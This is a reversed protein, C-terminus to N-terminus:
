DYLAKIRSFSKADTPLVEPIVFPPGPDCPLKTDSCTVYVPQDPHQSTNASLVAYNPAVYERREIMVPNDGWGNLCETLAVNTGTEEDIVLGDGTPGLVRDLLFVEIPASGFLPGPTIDYSAAAITAPVHAVVYVTFYLYEDGTIFYDVGYSQMGEADGFVGIVCDQAAATLPLLVAFAVATALILRNPMADLGKALTTFLASAGLM